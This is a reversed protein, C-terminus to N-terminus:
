CSSYERLKSVNNLQQFVNTQIQHPMLNKEQWESQEWYISNRKLNCINLFLANSM